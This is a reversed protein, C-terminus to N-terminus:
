GRQTARHEVVTWPEIRHATVLDAKVYPDAAVFEEVVAADGVEFAFMAAHPPDGLAGAIVLEGREASAHAHALHAERHPVRRELIDPVYDYTLALLRQAMLGRGQLPRAQDSDRQVADPADEWAAVNSTVVQPRISGAAALELIAPIAPRAAVRGTVFRIGATYMELLPMPTLEEFYIGVSTCIGGRQTSRVAAHLGEHTGTANITIARRRYRGTESPELVEAGLEQAVTLRGPDDDVYAVSSAGLARAFDLAYLGISPAGGGIVLVDAGPLEELPGAVTRWADPLNDSTSALMVPDAGQPFPVLMADAFPVLALDSLLGGWDGGFAGFGFMSGPQVSRCDGTLGAACRDCEGCSIQFPVVVRDGAAVSRVGEGVEVVEAIGEHGLAIPAPFPAEGRVMPQDLDCLAVTIPRVIAQRPDAIAPDPAERWEVTREETVTLARM